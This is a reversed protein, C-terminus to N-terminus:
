KRGVMLVSDADNAALFETVVQKDNFPKKVGAIDQYQEHGKGAILVIDKTKASTIAHMIALKRDHEVRVKAPHEIGSLIDKIILQTQETRPNDDTLVLQDAYKEAACGMLSRKGIDRDGGCGFVCWLIGDDYLHEKLSSLVQSLADPTHAFDIIVQCIHETKKTSNIVEMRGDIAKCQQVATIIQKFDLELATLCAISALLNDANFRGFLTSKIKAKGFECEVIFSLGNFELQINKAKFHANVDKTHNSYSIVNLNNKASLKSFLQQGFDDNSNIVATKVSMFDFLISKALAYAEMTEHYDLHDRTLNTFAAVDIAVSNLRGQILAHSSAEIVVYKLNQQCFDYLFRQVSVSDPTTMETDIQANIRGVGLTGIVGCALGLSELTQAILQCVSTKGNTGTVAIITLALSPHRYFRAAIESLKNNLNNIPLAVTQSSKLIKLEHETLAQQAEFIIVSCQADIAQQIHRARHLSDKATAVFLGNSNIERSDNSIGTVMITDDVISLDTLMGVLLSQLSCSLSLSM